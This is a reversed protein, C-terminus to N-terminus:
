LRSGTRRRRNGILTVGFLILSAPAPILSGIGLPDVQDSRGILRLSTVVTYLPVGLDSLDVGVAMVDAAFSDGPSSGYFYFRDVGTDAFVSDPLEWETVFGDFSTSVAYSNDSFRADFVVFDLGALNRLEGAAFTMEVTTGFNGNAFGEDIISFGSFADNISVPVEVVNLWNWLIGGGVIETASIPAAHITWPGIVEVGAWAGSALHVSVLGSVLFRSM